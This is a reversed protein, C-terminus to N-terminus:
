SGIQSTFDVVEGTDSREPGLAIPVGDTVWVINKRGPVRSLQVALTELAQFTIAVRGPSMLTSRGKRTVKRM